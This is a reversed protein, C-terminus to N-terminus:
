AMTLLLRALESWEAVLTAERTPSVRLARTTALGRLLEVTLGSVIRFRPASIWPEGFLEHVVRDLNRKRAVREAQRLVAAM